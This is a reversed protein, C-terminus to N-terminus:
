QNVTSLGNYYDKMERLINRGGGNMWDRQLAAWASDVDTYGNSGSIIKSYTTTFLTDLTTGKTKMTATLPYNWDNFKGRNGYTLAIDMGMFYTAWWQWQNKNGNDLYDTIKNWTTLDAPAIMSTDYGDAGKTELATVFSNYRIENANYRDVKMPLWNFANDTGKRSTLESWGAQWANNIDTCAINNLIKIVAEPHKYGKKVVYYGNLNIKRTPVYDGGDATVMPCAGWEANPNLDLTGQLGNLPTYFVGFIMGAHGNCFKSIAAQYDYSIFDSDICGKKVMEALKKLPEKCADDLGHNIFSGDAAREIVSPYAGYANFVPIVSNDITVNKSVELGYTKTRSDNDPDDLAFAECLAWFEDITKPGDEHFRKNNETDYVTQGIAKANLNKIWDLRYWLTPREGEDNIAPIGYLKGDRTPYALNIGGNVEINARLEDTAWLRYYDTMDEILRNRILEDLLAQNVFFADPLNGTILGNTIQQEYGSWPLEIVNNLKVNIASQHLSYAPNNSPTYGSNSYWSLDCSLGVNMETLENMRFDDTDEASRVVTNETTKEKKKCSVSGFAMLFVLLIASLKFIRKM